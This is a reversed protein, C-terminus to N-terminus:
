RIDKCYGTGYIGTVPLGGGLTFKRNTFDKRLDIWPTNEIYDGSTSYPNYDLQWVYAWGASYLKSSNNNKFTQGMSLYVTPISKICTVPSGFIFNLTQWNTFDDKLVIEVGPGATYGVDDTKDLHDTPLYGTKAVGTSKDKVNPWDILQRWENLTPVFVKPDITKDGTVATPGIQTWGISGDTDPKTQNALGSTNRWEKGNHWVIANPPYGGYTDAVSDKFTAMGGLQFYTIQRSLVNFLTNMEDRQIPKGGNKAISRSFIAPFGFSSSVNEDTENNAGQPLSSKKDGQEAIPTPLLTNLADSDAKTM